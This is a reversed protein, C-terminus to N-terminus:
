QPREVAVAGGFTPEVRLGATAAEAIFRHLAEVIRPVAEPVPEDRLGVMLVHGTVSLPGKVRSIRHMDWTQPLPKGRLPPAVWGPGFKARHLVAALSDRVYAAADVLVSLRVEPDPDFRAVTWPSETPVGRLRKRTALFTERDFALLPGGARSRAELYAQRAAELDAPREWPHDTIDGVVVHVDGRRRRAM